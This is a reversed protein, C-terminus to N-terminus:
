GRQSTGGETTESSSTEDSGEPATSETPALTPAANAPTEVPPNTGPVEVGLSAPDVAGGSTDEADAACRFGISRPDTTTSESPIPNSLRRHATRTFFPMTNWSGGRLVKQIGTPPGQPDVPMTGTNALQNYYDAQYWDAVWEEVNGAMDYLGSAGSGYSGVTVPGQAADTPIRTKAQNVDFNNGWPYIYDTIGSGGGSAAYEWEAETPLRRGITECYTNAGYWSVGWVPFNTLTTPVEYTAGDFVIVGGSEQALENLTQVCIFGGCGSLHDSGQSRLYNLFDVYQGFTVETREM